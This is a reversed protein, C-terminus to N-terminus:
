SYILQDNTFHLPPPTKKMNDTQLDWPEGEKKEKFIEFRFAPQEVSNSDLAKARKCTNLYTEGRSFFFYKIMSVPPTYYVISDEVFEISEKNQFPM